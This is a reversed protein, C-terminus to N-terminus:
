VIIWTVLVNLLKSPVFVVLAWNSRLKQMKKHKSKMHDLRKGLSTITTRHGAPNSIDLQYGYILEFPSYSTGTHCQVNLAFEAM